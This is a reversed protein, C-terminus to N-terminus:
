AEDQTFPGDLSVHRVDHGLEVEEFGILEATNEGHEGPKTHATRKSSMPGFGSDIM